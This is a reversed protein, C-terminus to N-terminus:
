RQQASEPHAAKIERISDSEDSYAAVVIIAGIGLVAALGLVVAITRLTRQRQIYRMSQAIEADVLDGQLNPNAM